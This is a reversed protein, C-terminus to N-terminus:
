DQEHTAFRNGLHMSINGYGFLSRKEFIRIIFGTPTWVVWLLITPTQLNGDSQHTLSRTLGAATLHLGWMDVGTLRRGEAEPGCEGWLREM